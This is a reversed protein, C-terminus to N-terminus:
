NLTIKGVLYTKAGGSILVRDNAMECSLQGGRHSLQKAHLLTKGFKKSWYPTLTTHASGTVPDELIGSQPAFFRSVFDCDDGPATVIIGRANITNLLAFDVQLNLLEAQSNLVAMYDTRGKVTEVIPFNLSQQLAPPTEVSMSTDMPFDLTYLHDAKQVSLGGSRTSWFNITDGQHNEHNFLIHGAALTAHGCLDVEVSPTFWRIAFLEGEPVVFATEALNNEAAIKQMMDSALWTDLLCVAAPNGQFLQTTFTDAQYMKIENM